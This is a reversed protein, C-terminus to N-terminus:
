SLYETIIQNATAIIQQAIEKDFVLYQTGGRYFLEGRDYIYAEGNEFFKIYSQVQEGYKVYNLQESEKHIKEVKKYTANYILDFVKSNKDRIQELSGYNSDYTNNYLCYSNGSGLSLYKQPTGCKYQFQQYDNYDLFFNFAQASSFFCAPVIIVCAVILEILAIYEKKNKIFVVIASILSAFLCVIGTAFLAITLGVFRYAREYKFLVLVIILISLVFVGLLAAPLILLKSKRPKM